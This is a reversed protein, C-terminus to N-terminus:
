RAGGTQLRTSRVPAASMIPSRLTIATVSADIAISVREPDCRLNRRMPRSCMAQDDSVDTSDTFPLLHGLAGVFKEAAARHPPGPKAEFPGACEGVVDLGFLRAAICGM